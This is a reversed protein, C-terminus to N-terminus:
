STPCSTAPRPPAMRPPTGAKPAKRATKAPLHKEISRLRVEILQQVDVSNPVSIKSEQASRLMKKMHQLDAVKNVADQGKEYKIISPDISLQGCIELLTKRFGDIYNHIHVSPWNLISSFYKDGLQPLITCFHGVLGIFRQVAQIESPTFQKGKLEQLATTFARIHQLLYAISARYVVSEKAIPVMKNVEATAAAIIDEPARSM